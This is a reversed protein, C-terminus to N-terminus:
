ACSPQPSLIKKQHKHPHANMFRGLRGGFAMVYRKEKGRVSKKKKLRDGWLADFGIVRVPM